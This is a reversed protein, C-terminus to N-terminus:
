IAWSNEIIINFDNIMSYWNKYDDYKIIREQIIFGFTIFKEFNIVKRTILFSDNNSRYRFSLLFSYKSRFCIKHNICEKSVFWSSYDIHKKGCICFYSYM